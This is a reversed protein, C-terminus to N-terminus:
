IEVQATAGKRVRFLPRVESFPIESKREAPGKLFRDPDARIEDEDGAVKEVVGVRRMGSKKCELPPYADQTSAKGAHPNKKNSALPVGRAIRRLETRNCDEIQVGSDVSGRGSGSSQAISIGTDVGKEYRV